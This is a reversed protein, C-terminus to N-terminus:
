YLKALKKNASKGSVTGGMGLWKYFHPSRAGTGWPTPVVTNM